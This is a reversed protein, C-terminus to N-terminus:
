QAGQNMLMHCEICSRELRLVAEKASNVDKKGSAAILDDVSQQFM